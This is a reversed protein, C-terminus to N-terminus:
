ESQNTLNLVYDNLEESKKFHAFAFKKITSNIEHFQALFLGKTNALYAAQIGNLTSDIVILTNAKLKLLRAVKLYIDGEPKANLVQRTSLLTDIELPFASDVLLKQMQDPKLNTCYIIKYVKNWEKLYDIHIKNLSLEGAEILSNFRSEVENYFKAIKPYERGIKERKEFHADYYSMIFHDPVEINNEKEIEKWLSMKIKFMDYVFDDLTIILTKELTMNNNQCLNFLFPILICEFIM